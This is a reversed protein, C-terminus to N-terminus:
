QRQDPLPPLSVHQLKLADRIKYVLPTARNNIELARDITSCIQNITDKNLEKNKTQFIDGGDSQIQAISWNELSVIRDVDEDHTHYVSHCYYNRTATVSRFDVICKSVEDKIEASLEPEYKVLHTVMEMRRKTSLVSAWIIDANGNPRGNLCFFIGYFVSELNAWVAVLKGVSFLLQGSLDLSKPIDSYTSM